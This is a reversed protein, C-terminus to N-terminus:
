HSHNKCKSQLVSNQLIIYVLWFVNGYWFATLLLLSYKSQCLLNQNPWSVFLSPPLILLFSYVPSRRLPIFELVWDWQSSLSKAFICCWQAMETMAKLQKVPWWGISISLCLLDHRALASKKKKLLLHSFFFILCPLFFLDEWTKNAPPSSVAIEINRREPKDLWHIDRSQAWYHHLKSSPTLPLPHAEGFGLSELSPLSSLLIGEMRGAKGWLLKWCKKIVESFMLLLTMGGNGQRRTLEWQWCM